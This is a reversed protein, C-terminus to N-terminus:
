NIVCYIFYLNITCAFLAPFSFPFFLFAIFIHHVDTNLTFKNLSIYCLPKNKDWCSEYKKGYSCFIVNKDNFSITLKAMGTRYGAEQMLKGFTQKEPGDIWSPGSCNQNNTNVHHNHAYRGTLISSRSPCCLPSTTFTNKFTVGEDRLLKKTKVMVEPSGLVVDLDDAMVFIINPKQGKIVHGRKKKRGSFVIVCLTLMLLIVLLVKTM